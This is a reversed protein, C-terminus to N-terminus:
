HDKIVAEYKDVLVKMTERHKTQCSSCSSLLSYHYINGKNYGSCCIDRNNDRTIDTDPDLVTSINM